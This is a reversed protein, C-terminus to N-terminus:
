PRPTRHPQDVRPWRPRSELVNKAEEAAQEPTDGALKFVTVMYDTYQQRIKTMRDDTELYYDRDPLSLGGQRIGAIMKTSDKLDQQSGIGFFANGLQNKQIDAVLAALQKKDELAAVQQLKPEIPKAGKENTLNTNM